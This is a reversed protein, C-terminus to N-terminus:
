VEFLLSVLRMEGRDEVRERGEGKERRGEEEEGERKAQEGRERKRTRREEGRRERQGGREGWYLFPSPFWV